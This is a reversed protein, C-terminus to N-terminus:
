AWDGEVYTGSREKREARVEVSFHRECLGRAKAPRDCDTVTCPRATFREMTRESRCLLVPPSRYPPFWRCLHTEDRLLARTERLSLGAHRDPGYCCGARTDYRWLEARGRPPELKAKSNNFM